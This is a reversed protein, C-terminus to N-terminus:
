ISQVQFFSGSIEYITFTIPYVDLNTLWLNQTLSEGAQLTATLEAPDVGISRPTNGQVQPSYAQSANVFSADLIDFVGLLAAVALSLCLLVYSSKKAASM